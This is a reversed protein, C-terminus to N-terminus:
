VQKGVCGCIQDRESITLEKNHLEVNWEHSKKENQFLKKMSLVKYETMNWLRLTSEKKYSLIKTM